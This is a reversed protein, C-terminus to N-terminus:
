NLETAISGGEPPTIFIHCDGFIGKQTTVPYKEKLAKLQKNSIPPIQLFLPGSAETETKEEILITLSGLSVSSGKGKNFAPTYQLGDDEKTVEFGLHGFFEKTEDYKETVVSLISVPTEPTSKKRSFLRM